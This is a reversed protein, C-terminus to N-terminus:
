TWWILPENSFSFRIIFWYKGPSRNAIPSFKSTHTAFSQEDRTWIAQKRIITCNTQTDTHIKGTISNRTSLCTAGLCHKAGSVESRNLCYICADCYTEFSKNFINSIPIKYSVFCTLVMQQFCRTCAMHSVPCTLQFTYCCEGIKQKERHINLCLHQHTQTKNDEKSTNLMSFFGASNSQKTEQVM